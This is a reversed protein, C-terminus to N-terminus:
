AVASDACQRYAQALYDSIDSAMLGTENYTQCAIDAALGHIYVGSAAAKVIDLGQALLAGIIGTLVDGSGATALGPNGTPNSFLTSDPCAVLTAPGKAVVCLGNTKAFGSVQAAREKPDNLLAQSSLKEYEGSHPTIIIHPNHIAFQALLALKNTFAGLGGGDLIIPITVEQVIQRVLEASEPALGPGIVLVTVHRGAILETITALDLEPKLSLRKTMVEPLLGAIQDAVPSAISVLGAGTRFAAKASLMPAGVMDDSGGIILVHGFDYKQSNAPRHLLNALTKRVDNENM